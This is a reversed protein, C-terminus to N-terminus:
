HIHLHQDLLHPLLHLVQLLLVAVRLHDQLRVLCVTLYLRSTWGTNVTPSAVAGDSGAVGASIHQIKALQSMGYHHTEGHASALNRAVDGAVAFFLQM